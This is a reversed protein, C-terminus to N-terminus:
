TPYGKNYIDQLYRSRDGTRERRTVVRKGTVSAKRLFNVRERRKAPTRPPVVGAVYPPDRGPQGPHRVCM